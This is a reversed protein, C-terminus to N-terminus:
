RLNMPRKFVFWVEEIAGLEGVGVTSVLEWGNRGLRKLSASNPKCSPEALIRYEWSSRRAM